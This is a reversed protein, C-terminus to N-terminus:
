TKTKELFTEIYQNFIIPQELNSLHGAEEIIHFTSNKIKDAMIQVKAPNTIKDDVGVLVMVPFAFASLYSNSDRRSALAGLTRTIDEVANENIMAALKNQIEPIEKLTNESM